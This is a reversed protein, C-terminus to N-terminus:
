RGARKETPTKGAAAAAEEAAAAAAAAAADEEMQVRRVKAEGRLRGRRKANELATEDHLAFRDLAVYGVYSASALALAVQQLTRKRSM